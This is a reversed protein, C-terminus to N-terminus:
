VAKKMLLKLDEDADTLVNFASRQKGNVSLRGTVNGDSTDFDIPTKLKLADVSGVAYKETM